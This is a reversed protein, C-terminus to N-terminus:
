ARIEMVRAKYLSAARGGIARRVDKSEVIEGAAERTVDEIMASIVVPMKGMDHPEPVKQLVHDLRMHTVWELAIDNANSLVAAQEATVERPTKTESFEPRKHKSMIRNGGTKVEFPPRIVIGERMKGDGMGRWRAVDSNADRQSDLWELDTPGQAFPVFELGLKSVVACANPVELWTEGIMVDFAIFRLEPGYTDKMGQMKGGYAEGYVVVNDHGLEVFKAALAEADFLAVFTEHKAGGAFFGLHGENWSVHASTGHVKELAYCERFALIRQDKYLNNIHMYGV